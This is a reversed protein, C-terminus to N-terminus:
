QSDDYVLVRGHRPDCVYAKSVGDAAVCHSGHAVRAVVVQRLTGDKTLELVTLTASHSGPVYLHQLHPNWAIIDVGSGTSASSAVAGNGTLDLAVAKGETCGVFLLQHRPALVLGRPGQCTDSWRAVIKRSHLNIALTRKKWLNTYARGTRADIVLSEPGGPVDITGAPKLTPQQGYLAARFLEIQHAGPEAGWVEKLPAVYRIYDSGSALPVHALVKGSHADAIALSQTDHDSAILYGDAYAVSTTGVDRGGRRTAAPAVQAAKSVADTNPDIFFVTGSAGGPVVVQNLEAVFDMDDFGADASVGPLALPEVHQPAAALGSVPLWSVIAWVTLVKFQIGM